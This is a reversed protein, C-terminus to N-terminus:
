NTKVLLFQFAFLESERREKELRVQLKRVIFDEKYKRKKEESFM